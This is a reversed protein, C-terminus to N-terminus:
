SNVNATFLLIVSVCSEIRRCKTNMHAYYLNYKTIEIIKTRKTIYNLIVFLHGLLFSLTTTSYLILSIAISLDCPPLNCFRPSYAASRPDTNTNTMAISVCIHLVRKNSSNLFRRRSYFFAALFLAVVSLIFLTLGVFLLAVLLVLLLIFAIRPFRLFVLFVLAAFSLTAFDLTVLSFASLAFVLVLFLAALYLAVLRLAIQDFLSGAQVALIIRWLFRGDETLVAIGM